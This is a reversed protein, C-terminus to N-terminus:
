LLSDVDSYTIVIVDEDDTPPQFIKLYDNFEEENIYFSDLPPNESRKLTREKMVDVPTEIYYFKAEAGIDKLTQRM